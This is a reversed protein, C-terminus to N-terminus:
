RSESVRAHRARVRRIVYFVVLTVLAIGAGDFAAMPLGVSFRKGMAYGLGYGIAWSADVFAESFMRQTSM